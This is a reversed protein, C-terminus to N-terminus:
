CLARPDHKNHFVRQNRRRGGRETLRPLFFLVCPARDEAVDRVTGKMQSFDASCFTEETRRGNSRESQKALPKQLFHDRTAARRTVTHRTDYPAQISPM